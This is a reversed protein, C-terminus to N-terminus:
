EQKAQLPATSLVGPGIDLDDCEHDEAQESEDKESEPEPPSALFSQNWGTEQFITDVNHDGDRREYLAAGGDCRKVPQWDPKLRDYSRRGKM